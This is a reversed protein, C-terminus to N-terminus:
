PETQTDPSPLGLTSLSPKQQLLVSLAAVWGCGAALAQLSETPKFCIIGVIPGLGVVMGFDVRSYFTDSKQPFLQRLRPITGDLGKTGAYFYMLFSGLVSNCYIFFNAFASSWLDEKALMNAIIELM